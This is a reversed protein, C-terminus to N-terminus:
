SWTADRPVTLLDPQKLICDWNSPLNRGLSSVTLPRYRILDALSLYFYFGFFEECYITKHEKIIFNELEVMLYAGKGVNKVWKPAQAKKKKQKRVVKVLKTAIESKVLKQKM